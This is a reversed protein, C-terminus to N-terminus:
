ALEVRGEGFRLRATLLARFANYGATGPKYAHFFLRPTGDPGPAVSPHGPALWDRTSNLLPKEQKRYPGLPHDAVAVGVGYAPTSFDNGAYFMWYRGDQHTVFPGEILHGEWDRDNQLVMVPASSLGDGGDALRAGFVPTVLAHVFADALGCDRLTRSVAPWNALAAEILPQMMFFREMPRRKNAWEVAAAAFAATRRDAETAFMEEILRPHERLLTALPRPWIGNSDSKWFLYRGGSPDVFIHSDIVGARVPSQGSTPPFTGAPLVPGTLLPRGLDRWPGAPDVSRAMGIALAKDKQRATYCLWYEDGVEAMEPAWFDAERVGQATWDPQNGRPFVFGEHRWHLLDDSRLIPFADPADNSTAVLAYGDGTRLVAPDGYGSLITPSLNATLLPQWRDDAAPFGEAAAFAHPVRTGQDEALDRFFAAYDSQDRGTIDYDATGEPGAVRVRYGPAEEGFSM